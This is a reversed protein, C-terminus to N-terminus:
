FTPFFSELAARSPASDLDTRVEVLDPFWAQVSAYAQGVQTLYEASYHPRRRAIEDPSAVALVALDPRPIFRRLLRLWARESGTSLEFHALSDFFYRNCIYWDDARWSLRYLRFAVVRALYVLAARATLRRRRYNSWRVTQEHRKPESAPTSGSGPSLWRFCPLARFKLQHATAGRTTAIDAVQHGLTSKGSGVIGSVTILM